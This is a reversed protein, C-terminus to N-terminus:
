RKLELPDMLQTGDPSLYTEVLKDSDFRVKLFGHPAYRDEEGKIYQNPGDLVLASPADGKGPIRRFQPKQVPDLDLKRFEPMGAHGICRGYMRWGPHQDYVVCEHEHGWYWAFVKGTKLLREEMKAKLNPGQSDLLSFPQHHSFLVIGKGQAGDVIRSLWALEDHGKAPDQYLDYDQYATDLGVIIWSENEHAFCSSKQEFPKQQVVNWYPRGGSYMEHNGNLSRHLSTPRKPWLKSFRDRFEGDTGSYYVDGLHLVVDIDPAEEIRKAIEPAGYLGTGWDGFIALTPSNDFQPVKEPQPPPDQWPFKNRADKVMHWLTRAWNFWDDTDFKAELEGTSLPESSTANAAVMSQLLAGFLHQPTSMVAPSTERKRIADLARPLQALFQAKELDTLGELGSPANDVAENMKGAIRDLERMTAIIREDPM